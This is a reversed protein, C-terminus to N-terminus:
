RSKIREGIPRKDYEIETASLWKAPLTLEGVREFKIIASDGSILRIVGKSGVPLTPIGTKNNWVFDDEKLTGM